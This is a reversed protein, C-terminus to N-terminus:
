PVRPDGGSSGAHIESMCEPLPVAPEPTVPRASDLDTSDLKTM